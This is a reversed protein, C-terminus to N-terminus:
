YFIPFYIKLYIVISKIESNIIVILSKALNIVVNKNQLEAIYKNNTTMGCIADLLKGIYKIKINTLPIGSANIHSAIGIM